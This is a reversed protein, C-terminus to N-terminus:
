RQRDQPAGAPQMQASFDGRPSAPKLTSVLLWYETKESGSLDIISMRTAAATFIHIQATGHKNRKANKPRKRLRSSWRTLSNAADANSVKTAYM